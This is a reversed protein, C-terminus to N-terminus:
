EEDTRVDLIEDWPISAEGGELSVHIRQSTKTKDGDWPIDYTADVDIHFDLGAVVCEDVIVRAAKSLGRIRDTDVLARIADGAIEQEFYRWKGFTGRNNELVAAITPFDAELRSRSDKPLEEYLDFLDHTKAAEDRRTVLVAKIGVECAVASAMGAVLATGMRKMLARESPKRYVIPLGMKVPPLDEVASQYIGTVPPEGCDFDSLAIASIEKSLDEVGSLFVRAQAYLYGATGPPIDHRTLRSRKHGQALNGEIRRDVKASDRDMDPMLKLVFQADSRYKSPRGVRASAMNESAECLMAETERVANDGEVSRGCVVCEIRNWRGHAEKTGLVPGWCDECRGTIDVARAPGPERDSAPRDEFYRREDFNQQLTKDDM